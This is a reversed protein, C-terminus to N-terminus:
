GQRPTHCATRPTESITDILLSEPMADPLGDFIPPLYRPLKKEEEGGEEKVDEHRRQQRICYRGQSM